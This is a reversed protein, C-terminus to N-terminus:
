SSGRYCCQKGKYGAAYTTLNDTNAFFCPDFNFNDNSSSSGVVMGIDNKENGNVEVTNDVVLNMFQDFGRLTGVVMRNANLKVASFLVTLEAMKNIEPDILHLWSFSDRIGWLYIKMSTLQWLYWINSCFTYVRTIMACAIVIFCNLSIECHM